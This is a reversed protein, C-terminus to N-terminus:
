SLEFKMRELEEEMKKLRSNHTTRDFHEKEVKVKGAEM